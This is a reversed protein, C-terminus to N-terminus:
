INLIKVPQGFAMQKNKLNKFLQTGLIVRSYNGIKLNEGILVNAGIFVEKGIRSNGLISSRSGVTIFSKMKVNHAIISFHTLVCFNEIVTDSCIISYPYIINGYGLKVNDEIKVSTDIINPFRSISLETKKLIKERSNKNKYSGIGFVFSCDKFKYANELGVQIPIGKVNKKYFKKDDDLISKVKFKKTSKISNLIPIIEDACYGAGLLVLNQTKYKSM